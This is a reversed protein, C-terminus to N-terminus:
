DVVSRQVSENKQVQSNKGSDVFTKCLNKQDTQSPNICARKSTDLPMYCQTIGYPLRRETAKRDTEWLSSYV